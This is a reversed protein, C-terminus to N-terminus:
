GPDFPTRAAAVFIQSQPRIQVSSVLSFGAEALLWKWDDVTYKNHFPFMRLWGARQREPPKTRDRPRDQAYRALPMRVWDDLLFLGGPRLVRQVEALVAFPDDLVHLVGTMSVLDVSGTDLRLSEREVDHVALTPPAGRYRLGRAHEIMAPSMDIGYLRSGQHRESIDRLFLGPGCGLDVIAPEAPLHRGVNARFVSWYQDNFRRPYREVMREVFEADSVGHIEQQTPM